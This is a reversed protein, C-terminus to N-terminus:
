TSGMENITLQSVRAIVEYGNETKKLEVKTGVSFINKLYPSWLRGYKELRAPNGNLLTSYPLPINGILGSTSETPIRIFGRLVERKQLVKSVM